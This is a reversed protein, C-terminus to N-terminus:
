HSFDPTMISYDSCHLVESMRAMENKFDLMMRQFERKEEESSEKYRKVEEQTAKLEHQTTNLEQQTTKVQDELQLVISSPPLEQSTKSLDPLPYYFQSLSGVGYVSGDKNIGGAAELYADNDEKSFPQGAKKKYEDWVGKAKEDAWTGDKKMHTKRFWEAPTLIENHATYHRRALERTSVSGQIHAIGKNPGKKNKSAQASRKKFETTHRIKKINKRVDKSMWKPCKKSKMAKYIMDKLRRAATKEFENRVDEEIDVDWKFRTKFINWWLIKENEDANKWCTCHHEFHTEISKTVGRVVFNNEFWLVNPKLETPGTSQLEDDSEEDSLEDMDKESSPPQTEDDDEAISYPGRDFRRSIPAM